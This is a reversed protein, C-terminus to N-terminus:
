ECRMVTVWIYGSNNRYYYAPDYSPSIADNPYLVLEGAGQATYRGRPLDAVPKATDGQAAKSQIDVMLSFYGAEHRKKALHNMVWSGKEGYPPSNRRSADFWVQNPLVAICYSEREEAQIGTPSIWQDAQVRATCSTGPNLTSPCKTLKEADPPLASDVPVTKYAIATCGALMLIAILSLLSNMM